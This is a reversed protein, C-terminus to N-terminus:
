LNAHQYQYFAHNSMLPRRLHETKEEDGKKERKKRPQRKGWEQEATKRM